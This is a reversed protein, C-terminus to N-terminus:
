AARAAFQASVMERGWPRRALYDLRNEMRSPQLGFARPLTSLEATRHVALYDVWFATIPPRPLLIEGLRLWLRLYPPRLSATMRRTRSARMVMQLVELYSLYEPGGIEYTQGVMADEELSWAIAAVLDEVWLPQLLSRGDGPIWYVLPSVALTMAM